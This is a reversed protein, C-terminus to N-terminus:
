RDPDCGDTIANHRPGSGEVFYPKIDTVAVPQTVDENDSETIICKQIQSRTIRKLQLQAVAGTVRPEPIQKSPWSQGGASGTEAECMASLAPWCDSDRNDFVEARVRSLSYGLEGGRKDFRTNRLLM